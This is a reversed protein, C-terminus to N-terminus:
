GGRLVRRARDEDAPWVLVRLGAKTEALTGAIGAALLRARIVEGEPASGPAAIPVLLGYEDPQGRAPTRSVLSSHRPSHAWRLVLMLVGVAAFALLPGWLYAYAQWGRMGSSERNRIGCTGEDAPQGVRRIGDVGRSGPAQRRM